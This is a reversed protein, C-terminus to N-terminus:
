NTQVNNFVFRKNLYYGFVAVPLISIAGGYYPSISILTFAKVCLVNVTYVVVYIAAFHFILRNDRSRFVLRGVTKFNFLVGIITALLMAVAYHLGVYLLLAFCGYGFLTNLAGVALFRLFRPSVKHRM